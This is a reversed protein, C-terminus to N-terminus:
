GRGLLVSADRDRAIKLLESSPDLGIDIDLAQAFRGSGIGIEIWPEPLSSLVQKLAEVELAFILRGEQEFWTDYVWALSDFARIKSESM